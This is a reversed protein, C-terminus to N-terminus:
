KQQDADDPQLDYKKRIAERDFDTPAEEDHNMEMDAMTKSQDSIGDPPVNIKACWAIANLVLKRYNPDAWNWHVHGGTFGFSRGGDDRNLAWAVHQVEGRAIAARVHPNGSHSGDSRSLTEAPPLDTLIPTVNRMGERFRMHYYWEDNIEFPRVGRTVPHEPLNSFSATWHPNVSWDTEFYGGLWELFKEGVPGKPVEVAYHLCVFGIGKKALVDMEALHATVMHGRGGDGYFVVCDIGEFMKADQPWGYRYVEAVIPLGSDNLSKCLLRCGAWHDHAGYGHSPKGALFLITRTAESAVKQGRTHTSPAVQQRLIVDVRAVDGKFTNKAAPNDAALTLLRLAEDDRDLAEYYLGVYLDAYFKATGGVEEGVRLVEEPTMTGAFLQQIQAMPVRSDQTVPILHKRAAEVSGEPARVMCLFHWAANEVDQPNVTQHLEFQRAGKEYEAAYYYAIGRQWHEAEKDPQLQLQRNFDAIARAIRARRFHEEGRLHLVRAALERVRQKSPQDLNDSKLLPELRKLAGDLDGERYREQAATLEAGSERASTATTFSLLLLALLIRITLM